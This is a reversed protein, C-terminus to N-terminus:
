EIELHNVKSMLTEFYNSSSSPPQEYKREGPLAPPKSSAAKIFGIDKSLSSQQTHPIFIKREGVNM